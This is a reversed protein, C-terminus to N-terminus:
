SCTQQINLTVKKLNKIQDRDTLQLHLIGHVENQGMINPRAIAYQENLNYVGKPKTYSIFLENNIRACRSDFLQGNQDIMDVRLGIHQQGVLNPRLYNNILELTMQDPLYYSHATPMFAGDVFVRMDPEKPCLYKKTVARSLSLTSCNGSDISVLKTAENLAEVWKQNMKISYPIKYVASRLKTVQIETNNSNIVYANEPYNGLVTGLLADADYRQEFKSEFIDLEKDSDIDNIQIPVPLKSHAIKSSSVSLRMKLNWEGWGDQKQEIIEYDNIYGSSYQGVNYKTIQSGTAEREMIIVQGAVKEIADEFCSRKADEVSKGVCQQEILSPNNAGGTKPFTFDAQAPTTALLALTLLPRAIM